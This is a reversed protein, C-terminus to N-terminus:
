HLHVELCTRIYFSDPQPHTIHPWFGSTCLIFTWILRCVRFRRAVSSSTISSSTCRLKRTRVRVAIIPNASPSRPLTAAMISTILALVQRPAFCDPIGHFCECICGSGFCVHVPRYNTEFGSVKQEAGVTVVLVRGDDFHMHQGARIESFLTPMVREYRM